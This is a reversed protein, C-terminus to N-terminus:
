PKYGNVRDGYRYLAGEVEYSDHSLGRLDKVEIENAGTGLFGDYTGITVTFNTIPGNLAGNYEGIRHSPNNDFTDSNFTYSGTVYQHKYITGDSLKDGVKSVYGTFNFTILDAMAPSAAMDTCLLLGAILGLIRSHLTLRRM